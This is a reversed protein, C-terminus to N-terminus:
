RIAFPSGEAVAAPAVFTASPAVNSVTANASYERAAGDKDKVQGKVAITGDDTTPCTATNSAGFAGYGAGCDFAFQLSPLDGAADAAASLTLTFPTGEAVPAPAAFTATPAVNTVTM